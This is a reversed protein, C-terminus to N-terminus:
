ILTAIMHVQKHLALASIQHTPLAADLYENGIKKFPAPKQFVVGFTHGYHWEYIYWCPMSGVLDAQLEWSNANITETM